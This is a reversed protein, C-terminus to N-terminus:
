YMVLLVHASNIHLILKRSVISQSHMIVFPPMPYHEMDNIGGNHVWVNHVLCMHGLKALQHFCPWVQFEIYNQNPNENFLSCTKSCLCCCHYPSGYYIGLPQMIRHLPCSCWPSFPQTHYTFFLHIPITGSTIISYNTKTSAKHFLMFCKCLNYTLKTHPPFFAM